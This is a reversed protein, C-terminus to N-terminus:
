LWLSIDSIFNTNSYVIDPATEYSQRVLKATLLSTLITGPMCLRRGLKAENAGCGDCNQCEWVHLAPAAAAHPTPLPPLPPLYSSPTRTTQVRSHAQGTQSLSFNPLDQRITLSGPQRSLILTSLVTHSHSVDWCASYIVAVVVCLVGWDM